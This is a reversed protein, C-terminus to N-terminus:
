LISLLNLISMYKENIDERVNFSTSNIEWKELSEELLNIYDIRSNEKEQSLENLKTLKDEPFKNKNFSWYSPIDNETEYKKLDEEYKEHLQLLKNM